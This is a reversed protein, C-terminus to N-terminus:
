LSGAWVAATQFSLLVLVAIIVDTYMYNIVVRELFWTFPNILVRLLVQYYNM